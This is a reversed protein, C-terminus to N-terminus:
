RATTGNAPTTGTGGAPPVTNPLASNGISTANAGSTIPFTRYRTVPIAAREGDSPPVATNILLDKPDNVTVALNSLSSCGLTPEFSNDNPSPGTIELSPCGPPHAIYRTAVVRVAFRHQEDAIDEIERV